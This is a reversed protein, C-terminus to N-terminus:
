LSPTRGSGMYSVYCCCVKGNEFYSFILWTGQKKKLEAITAKEDVVKKGEEM